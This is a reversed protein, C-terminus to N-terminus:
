SILSATTAVPNSWAKPDFFRLLLLRKQM